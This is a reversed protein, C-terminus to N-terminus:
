IMEIVPTKRGVAKIRGDYRSLIVSIKEENNLTGIDKFEMANVKELRM